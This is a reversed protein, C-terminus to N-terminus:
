RKLFPFLNWFNGYYTHSLSINQVERLQPKVKRAVKSLDDFDSKRYNSPIAVYSSLTYNTTVGDRSFNVSMGSINSNYGLASGLSFEPFGAVTISASDAYDLNALSRELREEGAENLNDDWDGSTPRDFNWPVLSEDIEVQVMGKADSSGYYWPGYTVWNSTLPIIVAKLDICRYDSFTFANPNSFVSALRKSWYEFAHYAETANAFVNTGESDVTKEKHYMMWFLERISNSSAFKVGTNDPPIGLLTNNGFSPDFRVASPIEVVALDPRKVMQTISATMVVWDPNGGAIRNPRFEDIPLDQFMVPNNGNSKFSGNGRPKWDMFVMPYFRGDEAMFKERIQKEKNKTEPNSSLGDFETPLIEWYGVTDVSYEIEPRDVRTPVTQGNFIRQMITSRPLCVLFRKGLYEDAYARVVEYIQQRFNYMITHRKLQYSGGGPEALPDQIFPSINVDIKKYWDAEGENKLSALDDWGIKLFFLSEAIEPYYIRYVLQFAEMSVLAAHLVETNLPLGRIYGDLDTSQDVKTAVLEAWPRSDENGDGDLFVDSHSVSRVTKNKIDFKCLPIKATVAAFDESRKDFVLHDLPLFPEALPYKYDDDFGWFPFIAGPTDFFRDKVSAPFKSYDEQTGTMHLTSDYQAPWAVYNKNRRGGVIIQSTPENRYEKGVQATSVISSRASIFSDLEAKTVANDRKRPIARIEIVCLTSNVKRAVTIYDAGGDQAVKQCINLIDTIEGDLRYWSPTRNYADGTFNFEMRIDNVTVRTNEIATRIKNWPMGFENKDSEMGYDYYGFVDIVNKVGTFRPAGAGINQSLSFGSLLCQVGGMLERPDVLSIEITKGSVDREVRHYKTCVGCFYFPTNTPSTYGNPNFSFSNGVFIPQGVGGKPLSFAHLSPISPANFSDGNETDEVLTITLNSGAGNLGLSMDLSVVSCGMFKYVNDVCSTDSTGYFTKSTTAREPNYITAM